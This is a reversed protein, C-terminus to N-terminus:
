KPMRVVFDPNPPAPGYTVAYLSNGFEAITTPFKTAPNSAFPETIYRTFFGSLYDPAMELVAVRNLPNQVVYLTKGDLLLGDAGCVANGGAFDGGSVGIPVLTFSTTDMLYLQGESMHVVIVYKGDPTAAIGNARPNPGTTCGGRVGFNPPLPLLEGDGLDGNPDLAVRGLFPRTTDTFYAADHTVVVDNIGPVGPPLFQYFAIEAGSDADYVTARGSTGGAVFLFHSRPDFKMGAAMRGTPPVLESYTGTRLDGVLIQGLTAPVLSGVYFTHGNGTAIGEPGFDAPLPILDPFVSAHSQAIGVAATAVSLLLAVPAILVVKLAGRRLLRGECCKAKMGTRREHRYM